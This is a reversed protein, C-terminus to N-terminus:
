VPNFRLSLPTCHNKCFIGVNILISLPSTINLGVPLPASKFTFACIVIYKAVPDSMANSEVPNMSCYLPLAFIITAVSEPPFIISCVHVKISEIIWACHSTIHGQSSIKLVGCKVSNSILGYKVATCITDLLVFVAYAFDPSVTMKVKVPLSVKDHTMTLMFPCDTLGDPHPVALVAVNLTVQHVTEPTIM